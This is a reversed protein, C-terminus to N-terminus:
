SQAFLRDHLQILSPIFACVEDESIGLSIVSILMDDQMLFPLLSCNACQVGVLSYGACMASIFLNLM